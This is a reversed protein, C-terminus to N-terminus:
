SLFGKVAKLVKKAYRPAGLVRQGVKYDFSNNLTNDYGLKMKEILVPMINRDTDNMDKAKYYARDEITKGECVIAIIDEWVKRYDIALLNDFSRRADKELQTYLGADSLVRVLNEAMGAVDGAQATLVGLGDKTLSLFPMDYMVLPIGYAKAELVVMPYGEMKSTFLMVGCSQYFETIEDVSKKGHFVISASLNNDSAYAKMEGILAEDGDGVIDLVADPMKAHVAKFIQMAEMPYKENSIRGILLIHKRLRDKGPTSSKLDAPVPNHVAYSNCGCLQYFRANTDSLSVVIDALKFAEPQYLAMKGSGFCWSFHGHCYLVVAIKMMKMLMCEWIFNQNTWDHYVLLDVQESLCYTQLQELREFMNSGSIVIRKVSDPYPYDLPNEEEGTFFVVNYGMEVWLTMLEANVREVGGNYGRHYITAITRPRQGGRVATQIRSFFSVAKDFSWTISLAALVKATGYKGWMDRLEFSTAEYVDKDLSASNTYALKRCENVIQKNSIM